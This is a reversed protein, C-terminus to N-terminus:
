LNKRLVLTPGKKKQSLNHFNNKLNISIAKSSLNLRQFILPVFLHPRIIRGSRTTHQGHQQEVITTIPHLPSTESNIQQTPSEESSSEYNTISDEDSTDMENNGIIAQTKVSPNESDVIMDTDTISQPVDM